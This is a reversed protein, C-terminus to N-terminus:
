MYIAHGFMSMLGIIPVIALAKPIALAVACELVAADRRSFRAEIKPLSPSAPGGLGLFREVTKRASAGGSLYNVTVIRDAADLRFTVGLAQADPTNAADQGHFPSTPDLTSDSRQYHRVGWIAASTDAYKWEALTEPLARQGAAGRIRTLVTRLYDLDTAVVVVNQRPFGVFTTWVDEEQTEEFVAINVGEVNEVRKSSTASKQVFADSQIASSDNFVAIACGQFLMGGLKKPPRFHRSGTVALAVKGSDLFSQLGGNKLSFLGAALMELQQKLQEASMVELGSAGSSPAELDPWVLPGNSGIVTETDPALWSLVTKLDPQAPVAACLGAVGLLLVCGSRWVSM